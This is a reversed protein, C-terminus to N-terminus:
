GDGAGIGTRSRRESYRTNKQKAVPSIVHKGNEAQAQANKGQQEQLCGKLGKGARMGLGRLIGRFLEHLGHAGGARRPREICVLEFTQLVADDDLRRAPDEKLAARVIKFGVQGAVVRRRVPDEDLPMHFGAHPLVPDARGFGFEVELGARAPQLVAGNEDGSRMHIDGPLSHVLDMPVAINKFIGSDGGAVAISRCPGQRGVAGLDLDVPVGRQGMSRQVDAIDRQHVCGPEDQRGLGRPLRPQKERIESVAAEVPKKVALRKKLDQVFAPVDGPRPRVGALRAEHRAHFVTGMRAAFVLCPEGRIEQIVLVREATVASVRDVGAVAVDIRAALAVPQAAHAIALDPIRSPMVPVIQVIHGILIEQALEFVHARAEVAAAVAQVPHEAPVQAFHVLVADALAIDELFPVPEHKRGAHAILLKRFQPVAVGRVLAVGRDLADGQVCPQVLPLDRFGEGQLDQPLDRRRILVAPAAYATQARLDMGFEGQRKGQGSEGQQKRAAHALREVVAAVAGVGGVIRPRPPRAIM